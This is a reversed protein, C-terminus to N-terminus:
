SVRLVHSQGPGLGVYNRGTHWTFREGSLADDVPFAPPFGLAAPLVAVGEQGAHPHLNAVVVVANGGERKAYGLLNDNETELFTVNDV